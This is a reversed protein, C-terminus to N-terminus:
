TNYLICRFSANQTFADDHMSINHNQLLVKWKQIFAMDLVQYFRM